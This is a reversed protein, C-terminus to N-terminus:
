LSGDSLEELGYADKLSQSTNIEGTSSLPANIKFYGQNAAGFDGTNVGTVWTGINGLADAASLPSWPSFKGRYRAMNQVQHAQYQVFQYNQLITSYTQRLQALHQQLQIYRLVANHYNTPDYVVGGFQAFSSQAAFLVLVFTLAFKLKM